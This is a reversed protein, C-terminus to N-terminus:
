HSPLFTEEGGVAYQYVGWQRNLGAYVLRADNDGDHGEMQTCLADVKNTDVHLSPHFCNTAGGIRVTPLTMLPLPHQRNYAPLMSHLRLRNLLQSVM